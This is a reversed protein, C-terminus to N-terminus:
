SGVNSPRYESPLSRHCAPWPRGDHTKASISATKQADVFGAPGDSKATFDTLSVVLLMVAVMGVSMLFQRPVNSVASLRDVVYAPHEPDPLVHM